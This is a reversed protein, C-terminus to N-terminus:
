SGHWGFHTVWQEDANRINEIPASRRGRADDGLPRSLTDIETIRMLSPSSLIFFISTLSTIRKEGLILVTSDTLALREVQQLVQRLAASKGVIESSSIERRPEDQSYPQRGALKNKLQEIQRRRNIAQNVASLLDQDRFPKTLFEIAGAKMARLIMPIDGHGTIFVIPIQADGSALEHQLDLGGM